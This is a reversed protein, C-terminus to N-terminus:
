PIKFLADVEAEMMVVCMCQYDATRLAQLDLITLAGSTSPISTLVDCCNSLFFLFCDLAVTHLNLQQNYSHSRNFFKIHNGHTATKITMVILFNIGLVAWSTQRCYLEACVLKKLEKQETM